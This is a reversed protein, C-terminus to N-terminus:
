FSHFCFTLNGSSSRSRLPQTCLGVTPCITNKRSPRSGLSCLLSLYESKEIPQDIELLVTPILHSLNESGEVAQQRPYLGHCHNQKMSFGPVARPNGSWPMGLPGYPSQGSLNWAQEYPSSFSVSTREM